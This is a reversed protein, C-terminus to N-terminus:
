GGGGRAGAASVGHGFSMGMSALPPCPAERPAAPVRAADGAPRQEALATARSPFGSLPCVGQPGHFLSFTRLVEESADEDFLPQLGRPGGAPRTPDLAISCAFAKGDREAVSALFPCRAVAFEVSGM